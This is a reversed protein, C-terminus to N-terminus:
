PPRQRESHYSCMREQQVSKRDVIETGASIFLSSDKDTKTLHLVSRLMVRSVASLCCLYAWVRLLCSSTQPTWWCLLTNEQEELFLVPETQPTFHCRRIETVTSLDKDDLDRQSVSLCLVLFCVLSISVWHRLTVNLFFNAIKCGLSTASCLKLFQMCLYQGGDGLWGQCVCVFVHVCM